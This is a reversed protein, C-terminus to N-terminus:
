KGSKKNMHDLSVYAGMAGILIFSVVFIILMIGVLPTDATKVSSNKKNNQQETSGAESVKVTVKADAYGDDFSIRFTHEGQSLKDLYAAGIMVVTSGQKASYETQNMSTGDGSVGTFHSFCNEDDVSRKVTITVPVGSGKVWVPDEISVVTYLVGSETTSETPDETPQETPEETQEETEEETSEEETSDKPLPDIDYECYLSNSDEQFSFRELEVGNFLIVGDFQVNESERKVKPETGNFYIYFSFKIKTGEEAVEIYNWGSDMYEDDSIYYKDTKTYLPKIKEGIKPVDFFVEIKDILEIWRAYLTMDEDANISSWVNDKEDYWDVFKWEEKDAKYNEPKEPNLVLSLREGCDVKDPAPNTGKGVTDYSITVKAPKGITFCWSGSIKYVGEEFSVKLKEVSAQNNLKILIDEPVSHGEVTFTFDLYYKKNNKLEKDNTNWKSSIHLWDYGLATVAEEVEEPAKNLNDGATPATIDLDIDVMDPYPALIKLRAIVSDFHHSFAIMGANGVLNYMPSLVTFLTNEDITEALDPAAILPGAVKLFAYFEGETFPLELGVSKLFESLLDAALLYQSDDGTKMGKCLADVAPVLENMRGMMEESNIKIPQDSFIMGMLKIFINQYVYSLTVTEGKVNKVKEEHYASYDERSPIGTELVNIINKAYAEDIQDEERHIVQPSKILDLEDFIRSDTEETKLEHDVGYRVMGWPPVMTVLDNSCLYNHIYGYDTENNPVASAEVVAPSEFTYAFIDASDIGSNQKLRAAILNAVAGGRSQGTIWFKVKGGGGLAAIDAYVSDAATAFAYHEDTLAQGNVTFNQTWGYRKISNSFSYSQVTVAVITVTDAEDTVTKTAWTYNTGDQSVADFDTFGINEFGMEKLFAAGKGNADDEIAAAVLQMSALALADNRTYSDGETFWKDSYYFGDIMSDGPSATSYYEVTGFRDRAKTVTGDARVYSSINLLMTCVIILSIFKHIKNKIM